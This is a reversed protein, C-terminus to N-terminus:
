YSIENLIPFSYRNCLNHTHHLVHTLLKSLIIFYQTRQTVNTCEQQITPHRYYWWQHKTIWQILLRLYLTIRSATTHIGWYSWKKWWSCTKLKNEKLFFIVKTLDIKGLIKYKKLSTIPLHIHLHPIFWPLMKLAINSVCHAHIHIFRKSRQRVPPCILIWTKMTYLWKYLLLYIDQEKGRSFLCIWNNSKRKTLVLLFFPIRFIEEPVLVLAM